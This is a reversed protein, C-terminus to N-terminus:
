RPTTGTRTVRWHGVGLLASSSRTEFTGSIEDGAVRGLFTTSVTCRCDPATYPELVGRVSDRYAIVVDVRLLQPSRVHLRHVEMADVPQLQMGAADLMMVDGALSDTGSPLHFTLNGRRGSTVAWYEGDWAGGLWAISVPDGQLVVPTSRYSCGVLLALAVTTLFRTM